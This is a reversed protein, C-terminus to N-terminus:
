LIEVHDKNCVSPQAPLLVHAHLRVNGLQNTPLCNHRRMGPSMALTM